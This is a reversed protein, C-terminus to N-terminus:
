KKVNSVQPHSIVEKRRLGGQKVLLYVTKTIEIGIAIDRHSREDNVLDILESVILKANERDFDTEKSSNTSEICDFNKENMQIYLSDFPSFSIEETWNDTSARKVISM